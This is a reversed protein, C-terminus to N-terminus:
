SDTVELRYFRQPQGATNTDSLSMPSGTATGGWGNPPPFMPPAIVSLWSTDALANKYALRYKYGSVTAFTFTPVRSPFTIANASLVPTPPPALTTFSQVNTAWLTDVVNTARFPFYYRTNAALGTATFSLLM